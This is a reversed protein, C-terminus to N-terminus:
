ARSRKAAAPAPLAPSLSVEAGKCAECRFRLAGAIASFRLAGPLGLLEFKVSGFHGCRTGACVVTLSIARLKRLEAITAGRCRL